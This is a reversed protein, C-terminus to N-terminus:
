EEERDPILAMAQEAISKYQSFTNGQVPANGVDWRELPKTFSQVNLKSMDKADLNTAPLMERILAVAGAFDGERVYGKWMLVKIVPFWQRNNGVMTVMAELAGSLNESVARRQERAYYNEAVVQQGNGWNNFTANGLDMM